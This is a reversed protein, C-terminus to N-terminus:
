PMSYTTGVYQFCSCGSQYIVHRYIRPANNRVTTSFMSAGDYNLVSEFRGISAVAGIITNGLANGHALQLAREYVFMAECISYVFSYDAASQPQVNESHLLALCRRQTSNPKSYLSPSVDQTELWGYGQVNKLQDSPAQGQQLSLNALSSVIWTPYYHQSEAAEALVLLPPGESVSVFMIHDVGKSRFALMANGASAVENAASANNGTGCGFDQTAAVNIQRSRLYPQVVTQWAHLTGPCSDLVIGIYRRRVHGPIRDATTRQVTVPVM